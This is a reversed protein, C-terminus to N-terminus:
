FCAFLARGADHIKDNRTEGNAEIEACDGSDKRNVGIWIQSMDGASVWIRPDLWTLPYGSNDPWSKSVAVSIKCGYRSAAIWCGQAIARSQTRARTGPAVTLSSTYLDTPAPLSEARVAVSLAVCFAAQLVANRTV